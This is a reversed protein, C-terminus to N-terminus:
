DLDEFENRFKLSVMDIEVHVPVVMAKLVYAVGFPLLCVILNRTACIHVVFRYGLNSLLQQNMKGGMRCSSVIGLSRPLISLM